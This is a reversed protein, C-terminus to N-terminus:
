PVERSHTLFGMFVASDTDRGEEEEKEIGTAGV